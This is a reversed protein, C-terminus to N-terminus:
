QRFDSSALSFSAISRFSHTLGIALLIIRDLIEPPLRPSLRSTPQVVNIARGRSLSHTHNLKVISSTRSTHASLRRHLAKLTPAPLHNDFSPMHHHFVFLLSVHKHSSIQPMHDHASANPQFNGSPKVRALSSPRYRM